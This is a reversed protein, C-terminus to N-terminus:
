LKGITSQMKNDSVEKWPHCSLIRKAILLLAFPFSRTKLTDIAYMSCTPNHRCCGYLFFHRIPGHDPSLTHQYIKILIVSVIAPLSSVTALAKRPLSPM